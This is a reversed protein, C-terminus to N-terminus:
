DVRIKHMPSESGGSGIPQLYVEAEDEGSCGEVKLDGPLAGTGCIEDNDKAWLAFHGEITRTNEGAPIVMFNADLVDDIAWFFKYWPDDDRVVYCVRASEHDDEKEITITVDYGAFDFDPTTEIVSPGSFGMSEVKQVNQGCLEPIDPRCGSLMLIGISLMVFTGVPWSRKM